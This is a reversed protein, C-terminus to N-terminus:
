KWEGEILSIIRLEGAHELSFLDYTHDQSTM